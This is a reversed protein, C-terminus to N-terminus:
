NGVDVDEAKDAEDSGNKTRSTTIAENRGRVPEQVPQLSRRCRQSTLRGRRRVQHSWLLPSGDAESARCPVSIFVKDVCTNDGFVNHLEQLAILVGCSM